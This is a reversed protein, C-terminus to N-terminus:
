GGHRVIIKDVTGNKKIKELGRKFAEVKLQIGNVMRSFGVHLPDHKLVTESPEIYDIYDPLKSALTYIGLRKDMIALDIRGRILKKLNIFEDTVEQVQLVPREKEFEPPNAYGRVVGIRFPKLNEYSTFAFPYGKRKFFVVENASIPPSFIFWKERKERYWMDTLGDYQGEQTLRLARAWPLYTIEIQYGEIKFAEVIIETLYGGNKLKDSTYPPYEISALRATKYEQAKLM